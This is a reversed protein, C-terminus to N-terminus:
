IHNTVTITFADSDNDNQSVHCSSKKCKFSGPTTEFVYVKNKVLYSSFYVSRFLVIPGPCFSKEIGEDINFM